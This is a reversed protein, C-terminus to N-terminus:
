PLEDSVSVDPGTDTYNQLSLRRQEEVLRFDAAKGAALNSTVREGTDLTRQLAELDSHLIALSEIVLQLQAVVGQASSSRQLVAQQAEAREKLTSVNTQASMALEASAALEDNWKTAKEHFEEPPVDKFTKPYVKKVERDVLDLKLGIDSINRVLRDTLMANRKVLNVTGLVDGEKVRELMTSLQQVQRMTNSMVKVIQVYTAINRGLIASLLAEEGFLACASPPATLTAFAVSCAAIAFVVVGRGFIRRGTPVKQKM